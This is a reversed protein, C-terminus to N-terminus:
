SANVMTMILLLALAFNIIMVIDLISLASQKRQAKEFDHNKCDHYILSYVIATVIAYALAMSMELEIFM